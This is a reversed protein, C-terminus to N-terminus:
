YILKNYFVNFSLIRAECFNGWSWNEAPNAAGSDSTLCGSVRKLTRVDNSILNILQWEADKPMIASFVHRLAHHRSVRRICTLILIIRILPIEPAYYPNPVANCVISLWPKFQFEVRRPVTGSNIFTSLWHKATQCVLVHDFFVCCELM